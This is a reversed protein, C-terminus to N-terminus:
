LSGDASSRPRMCRATARRRSRTYPPLPEREPQLSSMINRVARGPEQWGHGHAPQREPIIFGFLDVPRRLSQTKSCIEPRPCTLCLYSSIPLYGPCIIRACTRPKRVKYPIGGPIAKTAMAATKKRRESDILDLYQHLRTEYADVHGRRDPIRVIFKIQEERQNFAVLAIMSSGTLMWSTHYVHAPQGDPREKDPKAKLLHDDVVTGNSSMDQLMLVDDDTVFIRFHTNSVLKEEHDQGVVIDCMQPNRGFRFGSCPDKLRSSLRLAIDRGM